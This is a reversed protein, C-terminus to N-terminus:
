PPMETAGIIWKTLRPTVRIAGTKYVVLMAGFVGFSVRALVPYSASQGAREIYVPEVYLLGGAVPLTLLNGYEITTQNQRLLEWGEERLKDAEDLIVTAGLLQVPGGTAALAEDSPEGDDSIALKNPESGIFTGSLLWRRSYTSANSAQGDSASYTDGVTGDPVSGWVQGTAPDTM